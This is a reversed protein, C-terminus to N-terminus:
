GESRRGSPRKRQGHLADTLEAVSRELKAIRRALDDIRDGGDVPASAPPATRNTQWIPQGHEYSYRSSPATAVDGPVASGQIATFLNAWYRAIQPDQATQQWAEEWLRLFRAPLDRTHSDHTM